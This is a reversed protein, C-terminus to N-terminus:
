EILQNNLPADAYYPLILMQGFKIDTSELHNSNMVEEIYVYISEYEPTIYMEAIEWLTDDKEVVYSTFYKRNNISNYETANVEAINWPFIFVMGLVGLIVALIFLKKM